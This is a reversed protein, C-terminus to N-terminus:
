SAQALASASLLQLASRVIAELQADAGVHAAVQALAGRAEREGFGLGRLTRFAAAQTAANAALVVGGYDTGDAHRFSLGNSVRGQVTLEARHCARHHASCLTVLNDFEHRGGDERTRIHHVDVFVSHRCGPVQCRHHDRRLVSRRTAPPVTQTARAARERGTVEDSAVPGPM